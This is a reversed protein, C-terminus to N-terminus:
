HRVVLTQGARIMNGRLGNMKKLAAVTVDYDRAITSLSEGKKVVHTKKGVVRSGYREISPDPVDLAGKVVEPSPILVTQGARLVGRRVVLSPNYWALTRSSVGKGEKKAISALTEGKRSVHKRTAVRESESLAKFSEAFSDATGTPIRVYMAAGPPTMGRLIHPNLARVTDLSVSASRSVAALSTNGPVRVSDCSFPAMPDISIGFKGPTKAVIAAAILKPVYDRTEARLADKDALAFFLSDGTTGDFDEAYRALGRSVRGPGGNYAAAALYMSGFQRRLENIFKVAGDTARIPDRREDTWV